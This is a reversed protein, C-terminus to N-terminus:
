VVHHRHGLRDISHPRLGAAVNVEGAIGLAAHETVLRGRVPAVFAQGRQDREAARDVRPEAHREAQGLLQRDLDGLGERDREAVASDRGPDAASAEPHEVRDLRHAAPDLEQELEVVALRQQRALALPSEELPLAPHGPGPGRQRLEDTLEHGRVPHELAPEHDLVPRQAQGIQRARDQRHHAGDVLDRRCRAHARDSLGCRAGVHILERDVGAMEAEDHPRGRRRQGPRRHRGPSVPSRAGALQGRVDRADGLVAPDLECRRDTIADAVADLQGHTDSRADGPGRDAGGAPRDPAHALQGTLRCRLERAQHTQVLQVRAGPDGDPQEDLLAPAARGVVDEEQELIAGVVGALDALPDVIDHPAQNRDADTLALVDAHQHARPRARQRQHDRDAADAGHRHQHPRVAVDGPLRSEALDLPDDGVGLVGRQGGPEASDVREHESATATGAVEVGLVDGVHLPDVRPRHRQRRQYRGFGPRAPSRANM